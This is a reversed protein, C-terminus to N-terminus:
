TKKGIIQLWDTKGLRTSDNYLVELGLDAFYKQLEEMSYYSFFRTYEYGYDNETIEGELPMGEKPGKVAVYLVGGAALHSYLTTLVSFAEDRPIHLLSAQAFIGDYEDTLKGIERMDMLLFKAQPIDRKAINLLGESFDVGTVTFGHEVFYASKVGDGCGVDLISAGQPLYSSFKQTGDVWWTDQLHDKHWDEAIQNYTEQTNM